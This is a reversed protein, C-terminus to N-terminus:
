VAGLLIALQWSFGLLYHAGIATVTIGIGVGITALAAGTRMAPRIEHWDTTLGGEALIIILGAFGLAHALEANDFGIGLGGEGLLIGIFLYILLSPFGVRSTVRVAVIAVMTVA